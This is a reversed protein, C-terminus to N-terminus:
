ELIQHVPRAESGAVSTERSRRVCRRATKEAHLLVLNTGLELLSYLSSFFTTRKMGTIRGTDTNNKKEKKREKTTSTLASSYLPEEANQRPICLRCRVWVWIWVCLRYCQMPGLLLCQLPVTASAASTKCIVCSTPGGKEFAHSNGTAHHQVHYNKTRAPIHRGNAEEGCASKERPLDLHFLRSISLSCRPPCIGDSACRIEM